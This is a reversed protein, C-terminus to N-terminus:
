TVLCEILKELAVVIAQDRVQSRDGSFRRCFSLTTQQPGTIAFWVLGVPKDTTGGGPGAIGSVSLCYTAKSINQGGCAMREVTEKSVAGYESLVTEDVGVLNSKSQNSYTVWSQNFWQSSGAIETIAYAIGGGTCSEVTSVSADHQLLLDGLRQSLERKQKLSFNIM